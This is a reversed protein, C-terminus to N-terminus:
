RAEAPATAPHLRGDELRLTSGMSAALTSNHTVVVVACGVAAATSLLLDVVVAAAEEDLAGTPEDALVVAPSNVLARAISVRQQEGGSLASTATSAAVGLTELLEGARARASRRDAGALMLPLAVNDVPGLEPLLEPQQFVVGLRTRRLRSRAARSVGTMSRGEIAVSGADPVMLGLVVWLLSSKGVGSRGTVAVSQGADVVLDCGSLISRDGRRLGVSAVELAASVM